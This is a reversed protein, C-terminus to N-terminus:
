SCRRLSVGKTTYQLLVLELLLITGEVFVFILFDVIDRTKRDLYGFLSMRQVM